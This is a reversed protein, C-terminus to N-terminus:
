LLSSKVWNAEDLTGWFWVLAGVLSHAGQESNLRPADLVAYHPVDYAEFCHFAITVYRTM